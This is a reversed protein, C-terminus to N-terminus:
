PTRTAILWALGDGEGVALPHLDAFARQLEGSGARFRGPAAGVESLVCIALVGGPALRNMMPEYLRPDRFKHCLLVDVPDGPPLGADLDFADFRADVGVQRALARAQDVAVTSVDVGLVDLGRIALWVAASGVGCALDLASGTTPLLNEFPAIVTPLAVASGGPQETYASDWRLRDHESM